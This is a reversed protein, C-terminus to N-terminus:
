LLEIWIENHRFWFKYPADYGATFYNSKSFKMENKNLYDGLTKLMIEEKEKSTYGGYSIIAVKRFPVKEIFTNEGNPKPAEGNQHKNGLFFSMTGILENTSFPTEPSIKRVVPSTMDITEKTENKGQIYNFLKWFGSSTGM